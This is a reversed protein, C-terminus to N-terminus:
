NMLAEGYRPVPSLPSYMLSLRHEWPLPLHPVHLSLDPRQFCTLPRHSRSYCLTPFATQISLYFLSILESDHPSMVSPLVNWTSVGSHLNWSFVSGLQAKLLSLDNHALPPPYPLALKRHNLSSMLYRQAPLLPCHPSPYRSSIVPLPSSVCKQPVTPFHTTRARHLAFNPQILLHYDHARGQNM